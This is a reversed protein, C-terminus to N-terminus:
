RSNDNPLHGKQPLLVDRRLVEIGQSLSTLYLIQGERDLQEVQKKIEDLLLQASAKAKLSMATDKTSTNQYVTAIIANPIPRGKPEEVRYVTAWAEDKALQILEEDTYERTWLVVSDIFARMEETLCPLNWVTYPYVINMYSYKDLFQQCRPGLASAVFMADCLPYGHEGLWQAQCLYVVRQARIMTTGEPYHQSLIYGLIDEFHPMTQVSTQADTTGSV